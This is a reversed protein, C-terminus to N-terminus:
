TVIQYARSRSPSRSEYVLEYQNDEGIDTNLERLVLPKDYGVCLTQGNEDYLFAITNALALSGDSNMVFEKIQNSTRLNVHPINFRLKKVYIKGQSGYELEEKFEINEGLNIIENVLITQGGIQFTQLTDIYTVSLVSDTTGSVTNFQIPYDIPKGNTKMSGVWLRDIKDNSFTCNELINIAM